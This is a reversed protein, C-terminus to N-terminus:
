EDKVLPHNQTLDPRLPLIGQRKTLTIFSVPKKKNMISPVLYFHSDYPCSNTSKRINSDPNLIFSQGFSPLSAKGTEMACPNKKADSLYQFLYIVMKM